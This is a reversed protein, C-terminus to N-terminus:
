RDNDPRPSRDFSAVNPVARLPPQAKQHGVEGGVRGGYPRGHDAYEERAYVM